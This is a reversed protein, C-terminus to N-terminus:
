GSMDTFPPRFSKDLLLSAIFFSLTASFSFGAFVRDDMVTADSVTQSSSAQMPFITFWADGDTCSGAFVGSLRVFGDPEM